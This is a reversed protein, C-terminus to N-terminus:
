LNYSCFLMAGKLLACEIELVEAETELGGFDHFGFGRPIFLLLKVLNM